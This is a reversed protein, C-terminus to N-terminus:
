SRKTEDMEWQSGSRHGLARGLYEAIVQDQRSVPEIHGPVEGLPARPNGPEPPAIQPSRSRGQQPMGSVGFSANTHLAEQARQQAEDERPGELLATSRNLSERLLTATTADDLANLISPPVGLARLLPKLLTMLAHSDGRMAAQQINLIEDRHLWLVFSAALLQWIGRVTVRHALFTTGSTLLGRSSALIVTFPSLYKSDNDEGSEDSDPVNDGEKAHDAAEIM